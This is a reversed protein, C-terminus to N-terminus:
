LFIHPTLTYSTDKTRGASQLNLANLLYRATNRSTLQLFDRLQRNTIQHSVLLYYDRLASLHADKSKQHCDACTWSGFARIMPMHQCGPCQVGTMIDKVQIGYVDSPFVILPTHKKMLLKSVKKLQKLPLYEKRHSQLLSILREEINEVRVVNDYREHPSATHLVTSRNTMVVFTAVPLFPINMKAFWRILQKKQREVQSVPHGFAEEVDDWKRIAQDFKGDLTYIGSIHKVELIIALYPTLLLTDIQFFRGDIELRIDHLILIDKEHSVSELYYDLQLEGRYGARRKALDKKVVPVLEDFPSLRGMLAENMQVRHPCERLKDIM